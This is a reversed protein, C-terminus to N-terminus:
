AAANGSVSVRTLAGRCEQRPAATPRTAPGPRRLQRDSAPLGRTKDKKKTAPLPAPKLVPAAPPAAKKDKKPKRAEKGPRMAGKAM